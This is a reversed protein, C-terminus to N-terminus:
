PGHPPYVDQWFVDHYFQKVGWILALAEKDIQSYNKESSTLSRTAFAIPQEEGDEMVHSLSSGIGYPSADSALPLPRNPDCHTLIVDSAFTKGAYIGGRL